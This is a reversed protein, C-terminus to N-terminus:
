GIITHISGLIFAAMLLLVFDFLSFSIVSCV